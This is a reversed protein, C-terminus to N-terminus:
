ENSELEDIRRELESLKRALDRINPFKLSGTATSHFLRLMEDRFVVGYGNGDPLQRLPRTRTDVVEASESVSELFAVSIEKAM